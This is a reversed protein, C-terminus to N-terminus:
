TTNANTKKYVIFSSKLFKKVSLIMAIIFGAILFSYKYLGNPGYKFLAVFIIISAIIIPILIPLISTKLDLNKKSVITFKETELLDLFDMMRQNSTFKLNRERDNFKLTLIKGISHFEFGHIDSVEKLVDNKSNKTRFKFHDASQYFTYSLLILNDFLLVNKYNELEFRSM